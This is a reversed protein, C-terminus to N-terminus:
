SLHFVELANVTTQKAIESASESRLAVLANFNDFIHVPTNRSGQISVPAMDPADTELVIQDLPLQAFIKRLRVARDYTIAGGVGLKFGKDAYRKAQNLDGNFAHIVGGNDFRSDYLFKLIEQHAKRCHIVVPLGAAKAIMLQRQFIEQQAAQESRGTQFDLGIEGVAIATGASLEHELQQLHEETHHPMFMPHLGLAYHIGSTTEALQRLRPWTEQIVGPIVLHELGRQQAASFLQLRDNDFEVFDLHCHTDVLKISSPDTSM